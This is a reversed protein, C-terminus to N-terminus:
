HLTLESNRTSVPPNIWAQSPPQPTSGLGRVFREPNRHFAAARVAERHLVVHQALGHHVDHPTMYAIGSHRHENNYWNFFWRCFALADEFSGFRGPFLPHYKVTKFQSESFPNDNSTYPRTFSKSLSLQAALAALPKSTMAPGNDSHITIQGPSIGQKACTEGILHSALQGCEREALMWGVVYRSFIDLVVYLQYYQFKVPGRLKTIDWSWVQNPGDALLEPKTYGGRTRHRRREKVEGNEHLIRYMTSIGCLYMSQDLLQHYIAAPALDVFRPEHMTDLVRQREEPPLKRSPAPRPKSPKPIPPNLHRYLSARPLGIVRCAEARGIRPELEQVAAVM